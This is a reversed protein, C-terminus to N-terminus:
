LSLVSESCKLKYLILSFNVAQSLFWFLSQFGSLSFIGQHRYSNLRGSDMYLINLLQQHDGSPPLLCYLNQACEPADWGEVQQDAAGGWSQGEGWQQLGLTGQQYHSVPRLSAFWLTQGSDGWPNHEYRCPHCSVSLTCNQKTNRISSFCCGTITVPIICTVPYFM